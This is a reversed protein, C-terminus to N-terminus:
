SLVDRLVAVRGLDHLLAGLEITEWESDPVGLRKATAMAYRVIRASQGRTLADAGDIVSVLARVTLLLPNRSEMFSGGAISGQPGAGPPAFLRMANETRRLRSQVGVKGNLYGSGRGFGLLMSLSGRSCGCSARSRANSGLAETNMP